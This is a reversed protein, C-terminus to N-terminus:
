VSGLTPSSSISLGGFISNQDGVGGGGGGGGTSSMDHSLEERISPLARRDWPPRVHYFSFVPSPVAAGGAGLKKQQPSPSCSSSSYHEDEEDDDDEYMMDSNDDGSDNDSGNENHNNDVNFEYIIPDDDDNNDEEDDFSTTGRSPRRPIIVSGESETNTEDNALSRSATLMSSSSSELEQRRSNDGSRTLEDSDDLADFVDSDEEEENKPKCGECNAAASANEEGHKRCVRQSQIVNNSSSSSSSGFEREYWEQERHNRTISPTPVLCHCLIDVLRLIAAVILCNLGPGNHFEFRGQLLWEEDNDGWTNTANSATADTDNTPAGNGGNGSNDYFPRWNNADVTNTNTNNNFTQEHYILITWLGFWMSLISLLIGYSKTCNLDYLPYMRTINVLISPLILIICLIILSLLVRQVWLTGHYVDDGDDDHCFGSLDDGLFRWIDDDDDASANSYIVYCIEDWSLVATHSGRGQHIVDYPDTLAVARLGLDVTAARTSTTAITKNPTITSPTTTLTVLQGRTWSTSTLVRHKKKVVAAVCAVITLGLALVNGLVAISFVLVRWRLHYRCPVQSPTAVAAVVESADMRPSPLPHERPFFLFHKHCCGIRGLGECLINQEM